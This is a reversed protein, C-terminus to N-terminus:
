ALQSNDPKVVFTKNCINDVNGDDDAAAVAEPPADADGVPPSAATATTAPSLFYNFSHLFRDFLISVVIKTTKYRSTTVIAIMPITTALVVLM